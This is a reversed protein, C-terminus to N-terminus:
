TAASSTALAEDLTAGRAVTGHREMVVLVGDRMAAVVNDALEQSGEPAYPAVPATGAPPLVHGHVVARAEPFAAYIGLHVRLESSPEPGDLLRGDLDVVSVQDPMATALSVGTATVYVREGARASVNGQADAVLGAEALARAAQAVEDRV